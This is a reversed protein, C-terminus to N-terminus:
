AAIAMEEAPRSGHVSSVAEVIVPAAIKPAKPKRILLRSALVAIGMAAYAILTWKASFIIAVALPIRLFIPNFGFDEGIAHCIGLLNDKAAPADTQTQYASM